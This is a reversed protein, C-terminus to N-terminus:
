TPTAVRGEVVGLVKYFDKDFWDQSAMSAGGRAVRSPFASSSRPRRPDLPRRARYGPRSSRPSPRADTVGPTPLQVIAEHMSRTSPSARGRRDTAPGYRELAAACSRRSSRPSRAARTSTATSRPATSTTSCPFCGKASQVERSRSSRATAGRDREVRYHPREEVQRAQADAARERYELDALM